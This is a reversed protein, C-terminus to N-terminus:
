QEADKEEKEVRFMRQEPLAYSKVPSDKFDCLEGIVRRTGQVVQVDVIRVRYMAHSCFPQLLDGRMEIIDGPRIEALVKLDKLLRRSTGQPVHIPLSELDIM